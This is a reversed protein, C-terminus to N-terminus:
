YVSCRCTVILSTHPSRHYLLLNTFIVPANATMSAAQEDNHQAPMASNSNQNESLLGPQGGPVLVQSPQQPLMQAGSALAQAQPQPPVSQPAALVQFTPALAQTVPQYQNTVNHNM